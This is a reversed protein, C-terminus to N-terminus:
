TCRISILPRHGDLLSYLRGNVVMIFRIENDIRLDDPQNLTFTISGELDGAKVDKLRLYQQGSTTAQQLDDRFQKAPM